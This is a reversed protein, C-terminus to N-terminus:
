DAPDVTLTGTMGAAAHGEVTCRVEYTGPESYDTRIRHKIWTVAPGIVPMNPSRHGAYGGAGIAAALVPVILKSTSSGGGGSM